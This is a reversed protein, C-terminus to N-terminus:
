ETKRGSNFSFYTIYRFPWEVRIEVFPKYSNPDSSFQEKAATITTKLLYKLYSDAQKRLNSFSQFYYKMLILNKSLSRNHNGNSRM